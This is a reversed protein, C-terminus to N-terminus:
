YWAEHFTNSRTMFDFWEDRFAEGRRGENEPAAENLTSLRDMASSICGTMWLPRTATMVPAALPIPSAAAFSNAFNTERM